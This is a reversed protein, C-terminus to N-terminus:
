QPARGLAARLRARERQLEDYRQDLRRKQSSGPLARLSEMAVASLAREVEVLRLDSDVQERAAQPPATQQRLRELAARDLRANPRALLDNVERYAAYDGTSVDAGADLMLAAIELQEWHIASALAYTERPLGMMGFTVIKRNQDAGHRILAEVLPRNGKEIARGLLTTEHPGPGAHLPFAHNVDLGAGVLLDLMEGPNGENLALMVPLPRGQSEATDVRMGGDLFLRVLREDGDQVARLFNDSSWPVGLNALEKRPDDSRERKANDLKASVEGLRADIGLLSRQLGNVGPIVSAFLGQDKDTSRVAGVIQQGLYTVALFATAIGFFLMGDGAVKWALRKVPKVIDRMTVPSLLKRGWVVFVLLILISGTLLPLVFRGIPKLLDSVFAIVANALAFVGLNEGNIRCTLLRWVKRLM